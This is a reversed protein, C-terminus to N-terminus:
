AKIEMEGETLEDRNILTEAAWPHAECAWGAEEAGPCSIYKM